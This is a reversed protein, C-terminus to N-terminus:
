FRLLVCAFSRQGPWKTTPITAPQSFDTKSIDACIDRNKDKYNNIAKPRCPPKQRAFDPKFASAMM